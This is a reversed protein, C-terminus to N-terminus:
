MRPLNLLKHQGVKHNHHKQLVWHHPHGMTEYQKWQTEPHEVPDRHPFYWGNRDMELRNERPKGM